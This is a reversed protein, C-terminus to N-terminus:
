KTKLTNNKQFIKILFFLGFFVLSISYAFTMSVINFYDLSYLVLIIVLNLIITSFKINSVLNIKGLGLFYKQVAESAAIFM